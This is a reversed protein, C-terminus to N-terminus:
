RFYRPNKIEKPGKDANLNYRILLEFSGNEFERIETLTFDYAMSGFIRNNINLGLILDLSELVSKQSGGTRFNLGLHIQDNYIFLGMMDFDYPVNAATKFLFQPFFDWEPSLNFQVGAMAYYHRVEKSVSSTLVADLDAKLMRPASIGFYYNPTKYYGGIGANFINTSFKTREISPDLDFGDIAILNDGTFDNIFNRYSMQLGMSAIGNGLRIKYALMTGVEVKEQVGITQRQFNLGVGIQNIIKPFNCTINQSSPSGNIGSWQDRYIAVISTYDNEGAVAPNLSLKNYAFQTLQNEQQSHGLQVFISLIVIYIIRV